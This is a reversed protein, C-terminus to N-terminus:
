NSSHVFTNGLRSDQDHSTRSKRGFIRNKKTKLPSMQTGQDHIEHHESKFLTQDLVANTDQEDLKIEM